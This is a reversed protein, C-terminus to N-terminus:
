IVGAAALAPLQSRDLGLLETFVEANHQGLRPPPAEPAESGEWFFPLGPLSFRGADPHDLTRIFGRSNYQPSEVLDAPGAVYSAPVHMAQAQEYVERKSRDAAWSELHDNLARRSDAADMPNPRGLEEPAGVLEALRPMQQEQASVMAIGDRTKVGRIGIAGRIAHAGTEEGYYSIEVMAQAHSIVQNEFISFTVHQGAGTQGRAREAVLTAYASLVAGGCQAPYGGMRIPPRGAVGSRVMHGGIAFLTLESAEFDRYPGDAGFGSVSTLIVRPNARELVPYALGWEELVRPEFNEIVIDSLAVLRLFLDRGTASALDLTIGRKGENVYLHLPGSEGRRGSPQEPGQNRVPDGFGPPEVKIVDAGLRALLRAAFPGAIRQGIDLVRLGSLPLVAASM